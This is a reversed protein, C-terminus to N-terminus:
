LDRLETNLRASHLMIESSRGAIDEMSTRIGRTGDIISAMQGSLGSMTSAISAMEGVATGHSSRVLKVKDNVSFTVDNLKRLGEEASKRRSVELELDKIRLRIRSELESNWAQLQREVTALETVDRFVAVKCVDEESESWTGPISTVKVKFAREGDPAPVTITEVGEDRDMMRIAAELNALTAAPWSALLRPASFGRIKKAPAGVLRAFARNCDLIL